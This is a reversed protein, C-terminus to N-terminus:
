DLDTVKPFKKIGKFTEVNKKIEEEAQPMRRLLQEYQEKQEPIKDLKSEERDKFYTWAHEYRPKLRNQINELVLKGWAKTAGSKAYTIIMNIEKIHSEIEKYWRKLGDPGTAAFERGDPFTTKGYLADEYSPITLYYQLISMWEPAVEGTATQTLRMRTEDKM